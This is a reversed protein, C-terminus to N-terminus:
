FFVLRKLAEAKSFLLRLYPFLLFYGAHILFAPEAVIKSSVTPGMKDTHLYACKLICKIIRDYLIPLSVSNANIIDNHKWLPNSLLNQCANKCHENDKVAPM